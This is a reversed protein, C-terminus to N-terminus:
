SIKLHHLKPYLAKTESYLSLIPCSGFARSILRNFTPIDLFYSQVFLKTALKIKHLRKVFPSLNTMFWMLGKPPLSLVSSGKASQQNM